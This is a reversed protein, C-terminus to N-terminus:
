IKWEKIKGFNNPVLKIINKKRQTKIWNDLSLFKSM